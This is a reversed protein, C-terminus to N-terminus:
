VELASNFSDKILVRHNDHDDYELVVFEIGFLALVARFDNYMM